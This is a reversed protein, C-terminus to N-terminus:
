KEIFSRIRAIFDPDATLALAAGTGAGGALAAAICAPLDGEDDAIYIGPRGKLSNATEVQHDSTHEGLHRRRPLLVIPKAYSGATVVSGIGAHAVVVRCAKVTAEFAGRDLRRVWRMNSPVFGGDGIQATIEGRPEAAAWADMARVLRDFPFMSGVTVFIM